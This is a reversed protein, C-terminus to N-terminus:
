GCWRRTDSLRSLTTTFAAWLKGTTLLNQGFFSQNHAPPYHAFGAGCCANKRGRGGAAPLAREPVVGQSFLKLSFRM